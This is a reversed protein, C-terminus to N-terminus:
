DDLLIMCLRKVEARFARYNRVYIKTKLRIVDANKKKYRIVHDKHIEYNSKQVKLM